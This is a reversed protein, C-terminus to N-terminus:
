LKRAVWHSCRYRNQLLSNPDQVYGSDAPLIEHSLVEFGLHSVLQVVEEDTLEVSGPEGIGKDELDPKPQTKTGAEAPEGDDGDEDEDEDTNGGPVRNDFHWLLPGINIWVGDVKLCNRVTEIYRILNPATDIFFLSVLGDFTERSEPTSYSLVFDGATMNMEGVASGAAVRASFAQGPHIDPITFCRLQNARSEVNTFTHAFPYISYQDARETSNLIFNSAFLQHYSIENGTAHFGRLALEFLVRGLGAGPLLLSPSQNETRTTSLHAALDSIIMNLLPEVERTFGEYSWDRYFQRITSHAKAMDNPKAKGKWNMESDKPPNEPLAFASLGLQFIQEALDANHDIADDVASLTDRISFPPAALMRWQASPLAYFNQRRRHTTNFHSNIRYQHFSDLAAFIVRREQPDALPGADDFLPSPQPLAADQTNQVTAM